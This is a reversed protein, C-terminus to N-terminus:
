LTLGQRRRSVAAVDVSVEAGADRAVRADPLADRHLLQHAAGGPGSQVLQGAGCVACATLASVGCSGVSVSARVQISVGFIRMDDTLARQYAADDAFTVFAYTDTLPRTKNGLMRMREVIKRRIIPRRKKASGGGSSSSSGGGVADGDGLLAAEDADFITLPDEDDSDEGLDVAATDPRKQAADPAAVFDHCYIWVKDVGGVNRLANRIDAETVNRPLNTLTVKRQASADPLQQRVAEIRAAEKAKQQAEVVKWLQAQQEASLHGLGVAAMAAAMDRRVGGAEDDDKLQNLLATYEQTRAQFRADAEEPTLPMYIWENGAATTDVRADGDEDPKTSVEQLYTEMSVGPEPHALADLVKTLAEAGGEVKQALEAQQKKTQKVTPDLKSDCVVNMQFIHHIGIYMRQQLFNFSKRAAAVRDSEGPEVAEAAPLLAEVPLEYSEDITTLNLDPQQSRVTVLKLEKTLGRLLLERHFRKAESFISLERKRDGLAHEYIPQLVDVHYFLQSSIKSVVEERLIEKRYHRQLTDLVFQLKEIDLSQALGWAKEMSTNLRRMPLSALVKGRATLGMSSLDQQLLFAAFSDSKHCRLCFMYAGLQAVVNEIETAPVAPVAFPYPQANDKAGVLTTKLWKRFWLPVQKSELGVKKLSKNLTSEHLPTKRLAQLAELLQPLARDDMKQVLLEALGRPDRVVQVPPM